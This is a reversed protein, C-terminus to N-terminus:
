DDKETSLVKKTGANIQVEKVQHGDTVKVEWVAKGKTDQKLEWERSTGKKAAKEAIQSAEDRSIAKSPDLQYEKDGQDLKESKNSTIKGSQANIETKYENTKDFGEVKYIYKGHDVELKVESLQKNPNKQNFKDIAGQQDIKIDSTKAKKLQTAEIRSEHHHGKAAMIGATGGAGLLIGGCVCALITLRKALLRKKSTAQQDNKVPTQGKKNM